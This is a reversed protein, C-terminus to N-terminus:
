PYEGSSIFTISPLLSMATVRGSSIGLIFAINFFARSFLRLFKSYSFLIIVFFPSILYRKVFPTKTLSSPSNTILEMTISILSRFTISFLSLNM